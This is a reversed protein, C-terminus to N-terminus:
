FNLLTSKLIIEHSGYSINKSIFIFFFLVLLLIMFQAINLKFVLKQDERNNFILLILAFASILYYVAELNNLNFISKNNILANLLGVCQSFFLFFILLIQINKKLYLINSSFYKLFFFSQTTFVIYPIISITMPNKVIEIISKPQTYISFYLLIFSTLHFFNKKSLQFSM